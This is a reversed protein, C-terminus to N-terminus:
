YITTLTTATGQGQARLELYANASYTVTYQALLSVSGAVNRHLSLNNAGASVMVVRYYTRAASACRVFPGMGQEVGLAVAVIKVRSNQDNAWTRASYRASCDAGTNSPEAHNSVIAMATESTITTWNAGLGGDARNFNDTAQITWTAM